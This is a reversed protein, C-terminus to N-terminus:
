YFSLEVKMFSDILFVKNTAKPTQKTDEKTTENVATLRLDICFSFAIFSWLILIRSAAFM